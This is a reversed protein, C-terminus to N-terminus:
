WKELEEDVNTRVSWARCVARLTVLEEYSMPSNLGLAHAAEILTFPYEGMAHRRDSEIAAYARRTAIADEREYDM